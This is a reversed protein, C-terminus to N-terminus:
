VWMSSIKSFMAYIVFFVGFNTALIKAVLNPKTGSQDFFVDFIRTVPRQAPFEGPVPSNGARIALLASFTEM